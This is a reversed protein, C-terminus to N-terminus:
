EKEKQLIGKIEFLMKTSEKVDVKVEKMDSSLTNMQTELKVIRKEHDSHESKRIKNTEKRESKIKLYTAAAGILGLLAAGFYDIFDQM